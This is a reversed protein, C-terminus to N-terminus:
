ASSAVLAEADAIRARAGLSRFLQLSRDLQLEASSADGADVLAAAARLRAEAEDPVAGVEAYVEAALM